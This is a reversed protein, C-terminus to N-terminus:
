HKSKKESMKLDKKRIGKLMDLNIGISVLIRQYFLMSQVYTASEYKITMYDHLMEDLEKLNNTIKKYIHNCEVNDSILGSLKQIYNALVGQLDIYKKFLIYKHDKDDVPIDSVSDTITIGHAVMFQKIQEVQEADIDDYKNILKSVFNDESISRQHNDKFQQLLKQEIEEVNVM